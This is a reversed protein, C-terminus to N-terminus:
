PLRCKNTKGLLFFIIPLEMNTSNYPEVLLLIKCINQKVFLDIRMMKFRSCGVFTWFKNLVFSGSDNYVIPFFLIRSMECLGDLNWGIYCRRIVSLFRLEKEFINRIRNYVFKVNRRM